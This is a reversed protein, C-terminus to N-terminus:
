CVCNYCVVTIAANVVALAVRLLVISDSGPISVVRAEVGTETARATTLAAIVTETMSPTTELHPPFYPLGGRQALNYIGSGFLRCFHRAERRRPRPGFIPGGENGAM